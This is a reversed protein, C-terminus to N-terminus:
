KHAQLAMFCHACDLADPLARHRPLTSTVNLTQVLEVLTPYKRLVLQKWGMMMTCHFPITSPLPQGLRIFESLLINRDFHVNHAIWADVAFMSALDAAVSALPVGEQEAQDHTIGHFQSNEIRYGDPRFLFTRQENEQWGHETQTLTVCALEIMRSSQYADLQEPPYWLNFGRTRPLGTTELDFVVVRAGVAFTPKM